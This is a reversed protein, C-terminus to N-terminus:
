VWYQTLDRSEGNGWRDEGTRWHGKGTGVPLLDVAWDECKPLHLSRLGFRPVQNKWTEETNMDHVYRQPVPYVRQTALGSGTNSTLVKTRRTKSEEDWLDWRSEFYLGLGPCATQRQDEEASMGVPQIRTPEPIGNLLHNVVAYGIENSRNGQIWPECPEFDTPVQFYARSFAHSLEHILVQALYLNTRSIASSADLSRLRRSPPVSALDLPITLRDQLHDTDNSVDSDFTRLADLFAQPRAAELPRGNTSFRYWTLGLANYKELDQVSKFQWSTWERMELIREFAVEMDTTDTLAMPVVLKCPGHKPDVFQPLTATDNSISYLLAITQPEDLIATALLLAPQLLEYDDDSINPWMDQRLVPHVREDENEYPNREKAGQGIPDMYQELKAPKYNIFGAKNLVQLGWKELLPHWDPTLSPPGLKYKAAFVAPDPVEPEGFNTIYMQRVNFKKSTPEKQATFRWSHQDWRTSGWTNGVLTWPPLIPPGMPTYTRLANPDPTNVSAISSSDSNVDDFDPMDVDDFNAMGVDDYGNM